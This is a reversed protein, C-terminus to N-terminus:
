SQGISHSVPDLGLNRYERFKLRSASRQETDGPVIELLRKFRSPEPVAATALNIVVDRDDPIEESQAGIAVPAAAANEGTEHPLFRGPPADWMLEDLIRVDSELETRVSVRHGQEWAMMALRCALKEASHSASALVYFDVQCTATV